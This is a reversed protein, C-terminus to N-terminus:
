LFWANYANEKARWSFAAVGLTILFLFYAFPAYSFGTMQWLYLSVVPTTGSFIMSGMAHGLCLSRFRIKVDYQQTLFLYAPAVFFAMSVTTLLILPLFVINDRIFVLNIMALGITFAGGLKGTRVYGLRDATWGAFPLTFVYLCILYFSLQPAFDDPILNLVTSLYTCQFIFNFHYIGGVAGTILITRILSRWRAKLINKLTTTTNHATHQLRSFPPTEVLHRRFLYIVLGYMGSGLFAWRWASGEGSIQSAVLSALAMGAYASCSISASIL